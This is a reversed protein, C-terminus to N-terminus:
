FPLSVNSLVGYQTRLTFPPPTTTYYLTTLPITYAPPSRVDVLASRSCWWVAEMWWTKYVPLLPLGQLLLSSLPVCPKVSFLFIPLLHIQRFGKAGYLLVLYVYM